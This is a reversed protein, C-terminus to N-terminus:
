NEYIAKIVEDKVGEQKSLLTGDDNYIDMPFKYELGIKCKMKLGGNEWFMSCEGSPIGNKYNIQSKKVGSSYYETWLDNKLNDIYMGICEIIPFYKRDKEKTLIYYDEKIIPVKIEIEETMIDFPIRFERWMGQKMGLSDVSNLCIQTRGDISIFFLVTIIAFCYSYKM